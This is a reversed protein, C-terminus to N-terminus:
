QKGGIFFASAEPNKAWFDLYFNFNYEYNLGNYHLKNNKNLKKLDEISSVIVINKNPKNDLNRNYPHISKISYIEKNISIFRKSRPYNLRDIAEKIRGEEVWKLKRELDKYEDMLHPIGMWDAISDSSYLHDDIMVELENLRYYCYWKFKEIEDSNSDSIIVKQLLVIDELFVFTNSPLDNINVLSGRIKSQIGM